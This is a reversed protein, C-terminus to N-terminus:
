TAWATAFKTVVPDPGIRNPITSPIVGEVMGGFGMGLDFATVKFRSWM